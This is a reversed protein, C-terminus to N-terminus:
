LGAHAPSYDALSYIERGRNKMGKGYM